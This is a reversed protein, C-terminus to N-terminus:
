SMVSRYIDLTERATKAWSFRRANDYGAAILSARLDMDLLCRKIATAMEDVSTPDFMLAGRGAVEPLSSGSSCAVPVGANQADLALLGFGEYLSPYAFLSANKMLAVVDADPLYGTFEVRDSSANVIESRISHVKDPLHGVLVLSHPISDRIQAFAALLRNVNKHASLASFALIYPRPVGRVVPSEPAHVAAEYQAPDRGANHVVSVKEAPLGLHKIIECRSFESVAIVHEARHVSRRVFSGFAQRGFASHRGRHGLFNLDHVTVIQPFSSALPVVYGLSHVLDPKERRLQAPLVLQEWSYRVSRRVAFFPCVVRRFNAAPTIDLDASDQNVFVVYENDRDQAALEHILATAYTQTGGVVGPILYLLNLAIQM